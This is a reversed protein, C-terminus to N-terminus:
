THFRDLLTGLIMAAIGTMKTQQLSVLRRRALHRFGGQQLPCKYIKRAPHYEQLDMISGYIRHM